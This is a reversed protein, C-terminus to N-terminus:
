IVVAVFYLSAICFVQYEEICTIAWYLVNLDPVVHCPLCPCMSLSTLVSLAM